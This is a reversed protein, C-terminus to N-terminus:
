KHKVKKTILSACFAVIVGLLANELILILMVLPYSASPVSIGLVPKELYSMSIFSFLVIVSVSVFGLIGGYFASMKLGEHYYTIGTYIILAIKAFSFLLNGFSYSSVPPLVGLLILVSEILSLAAVLLILFLLTKKKM